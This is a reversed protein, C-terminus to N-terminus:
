ELFRPYDQRIDMNQTLRRHQEAIMDMTLNSEGQVPITQIDTTDQIM